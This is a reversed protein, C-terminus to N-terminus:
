FGSTDLAQWRTRSRVQEVLETSDDLYIGPSQATDQERLLWELKDAPTMSITARYQGVLPFVAVTADYSAQSANTLIEGGLAQLIGFSPLLYAHQALLRPLADAKKDHDEPSCWQQWPRVHFDPPPEVGVYRYAVQNALRTYVLTNDLDFVWRM